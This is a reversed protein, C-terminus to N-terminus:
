LTVFELLGKEGREILLIFENFSRCREGLVCVFYWKMFVSGLVVFIFVKGSGMGLAVGNIIVCYRGLM